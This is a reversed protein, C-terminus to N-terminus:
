GCYLAKLKAANEPWKEWYVATFGAFAIAFASHHNRKRLQIQNLRRSVPSCHTWTRFNRNQVLKPNASKQRAMWKQIGSMSRVCRRHKTVRYSLLCWCLSWLDDLGEDWAWVCVDGNMKEMQMRLRSGMGMVTNMWWENETVALM